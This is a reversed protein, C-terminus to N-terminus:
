ENFFITTQYVKEKEPMGFRKQMTKLSIRIQISNDIKRFGRESEEVDVIARGDTIPVSNRELVGDVVSYVVGGEDLTLELTNSYSSDTPIEISQAKKVDTTIKDIMLSSNNFLVSDVQQNVKYNAMQYFFNTILGLVITLLTTYILIEILTIGKNSQEM